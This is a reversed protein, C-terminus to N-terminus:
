EPREEGGPAKGPDGPDSGSEEDRVVEFEGEPIEEEPPVPSPLAGAIGSELMFDRVGPDALAQRLLENLDGTIMEQKVEQKEVPKGRRGQMDLMRIAANMRTKWDPPGEFEVKEGDEKVLVTGPLRAELAEFITKMARKEGELLEEEMMDQHREQLRDVAAQFLPDRKWKRVTDHHVGIRESVEKANMGLALFRVAQAKRIHWNRSKKYVAM